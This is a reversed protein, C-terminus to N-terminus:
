TDIEDEIAKSQREIRAPRTRTQRRTITLTQIQLRNELRTRDTILATHEIQSEKLDHRDKGVAQDPEMDPAAGTAALMAADAKDTEARTGLAEAFRRARLPNVKVLPFQGAFALEFAGHWAGTAESIVLEPRDEGIWTRLASFGRQDNLFRASRGARPWAMDLHAKSIDIGISDKTM